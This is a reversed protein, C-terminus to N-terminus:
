CYYVTGLIDNQPLWKRVMVNQTQYPLSDSEWKWLVRYPLESFADLFAKVKDPSMKDSRVNTGLSLFIAGHKAEDLFKKLDQFLYVMNMKSFVM